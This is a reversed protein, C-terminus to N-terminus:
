TGDDEPQEDEGSGDGDTDDPDWTDEAAEDLQEDTEDESGSPADGGGLRVPAEFPLPCLGVRFEQNSGAPIVIGDEDKILAIYALLLGRWRDNWWSKCFSRRLGHMRGASPLPLVGDQTFVVHTRLVVRSERRVLPIAEVAFHWHVKRKESRGVLRKKRQIGAADTYRTWNGEAYEHRPYWATFGSALGYRLLGKAEMAKSWCTRFLFALMKSAEPWELRPLSHPEEHLISTLPIRHAPTARQWSPLHDNVDKETAFTAMMEAYPYVAYPFSGFKDIIKDQAVPVRFFNLVEPIVSVPLQNSMLEQPEQVVSLPGALMEKFWEGTRRAELAHEHPVSDRALVKLLRRLGEAWGGHFDIINKRALNAQTESFPVDDIRVPIVFEKIKQSREVTVALHVEDLVGEKEQAARSLVVVTKAAHVRIAEEIDRWFVEAGVLKTLDSWVLYGHSTLRGALWLTFDNDEPNAHSIFVLRRSIPM